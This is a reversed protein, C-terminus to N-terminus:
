RKEVQTGFYFGVASGLLATIAPLVLEMLARADDWVSNKWVVIAFSAIIVFALLAIFAGTMWGRVKEPFSVLEEEPEITPEIREETLDIKITPESDESSLDPIEISDEGVTQILDVMDEGPLDQEAELPTSESVGRSSPNPNETM